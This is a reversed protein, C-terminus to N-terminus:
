DEISDPPKFHFRNTVFLLHNIFKAEDKFVFVWAGHKKLFAIKKKLNKSEERGIYFCVKKHVLDIKQKKEEKLKLTFEFASGQGFTSEVNLTGDLKKSLERAIHLGLGLGKRETKFRSYPSFIHEIQEPTMGIGSDQVLFTIELAGKSLERHKVSLHIFGKDTYKVANSLLNIIVQRIRTSDCFVPPLDQPIDIKLYLGKSDYLPQVTVVADGIIESIDTWDKSLTMRDAEVRSLDLVDNVLESLHQSNRQITAIDSLLAPPLEVGYIKPSQTILESFGIIM